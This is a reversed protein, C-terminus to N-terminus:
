GPRPLAREPRPSETLVPRDPAFVPKAHWWRDRSITEGFAAAGDGHLQFDVRGDTRADFWVVARVLPLSRLHALADRVWRGSDGGTSVTAIESVMIPKGLPALADYTADFIDRSERWFQREMATGWNFGTMSTWDVYGDGPYFRKVDEVRSPRNGYAVVTWVWTVNHAGERRFVDVIHRWATVFLEPTNGKVRIAWPYWDGNMEHMMRMLIPRQTAAVGRAWSRIYPDFKGSAIRRLVATLKTPSGTPPKKWPEWTIMPVYGRDAAQEVWDPRFRPEGSFWQQYWHLISPRVGHTRAWQQAANSRGTLDPNFVGVYAGQEPVQLVAPDAPSRPLGPFAVAALTHENGPLLNSPLPAILVLAALAPVRLATRVRRSIEARRSVTGLLGAFVFMMWAAWGISVEPTLRRGSLGVVIALACAAVIVAHPLLLPTWARQRKKDTVVAAPRRRRLARVTAVLYVPALFISAQMGRVAGRVGAYSAMFAVLSVLFPAVHVAYQASSTTRLPAVGALLYLLPGLVFILQACAVLYYGSTHLYHFRQGLTLGKKLLPNDRFFLRLSDTAWQVRQKVLTSATGPADGTTVPTPHYVSRWGKAHLEFSTTLDEVINWEAFGGVDNIAARRYVVANGCSFAANSADKGRQLSRYFFPETNCLVDQKDTKFFRQPTCVFAVLSDKFYGLTEHAFGADALHDADIVAIMEGSTKKMASNLNAAKSREGALRTFCTVGYREGLRKIERWGDKRTMLGDNLLYTRHPYDIALAAQLTREVMEVPEGCVTIFVDLSGSPPAPPGSRDSIRWVLLGTLLAYAFMILEAGFFVAGWVGTGRMVSPRWSMYWLGTAALLVTAVRGLAPRPASWPERRRAAPRVAGGGAAPAAPRRLSIRADDPRLEFLKMAVGGHVGGSSRCSGITAWLASRPDRWANGAGGGDDGRTESVVEAAPLPPSIARVPMLQRGCAM